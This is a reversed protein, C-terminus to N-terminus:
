VGGTRIVFCVVAKSSVVTDVQCLLMMAVSINNAPTILMGGNANIQASTTQGDVNVTGAPTSVHLDCSACGTGRVRVEASTDADGDNLVDWTNIGNVGSTLVADGVLNNQIGERAVRDRRLFETSTLGDLKDADAATTASNATNASNASNATNASGATTASDASTAFPVTGLSSELVQAGTLSDGAVKSGDIAGPAIASGGVAGPAVKGATVAGRDLDSARVNEPKIDGSDVTNRGSLAAATGSLSVFLAILAVVMSPSPKKSPM